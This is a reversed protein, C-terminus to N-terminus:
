EFLERVRSAGVGVFLEIFESGNISFFPVGAEGAVARALLTKGTGPPGVLLVGRPVKGGLRRFREPEKLFQVIELLDQKASKLGAVDDFRVPVQGEKEFRRTRGRMMGGLPGGGSTMMSQARRSVWVWLGVLLVFPLVSLLIQVAVPQEESKVDVQVGQKRLLPVFENDDQPPLLTRFANTKRGAVTLPQRVKGTVTQGKITLSEVNKAELAAYFQTYSISPLEAENSAFHTWMWVATLLFALLIMGRVGPRTPPTEPGSGKTSPPRSANPPPPRSGLIDAM